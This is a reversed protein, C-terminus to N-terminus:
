HPPEIPFIDITTKQPAAPDFSIIKITHLSIDALNWSPVNSEFPPVNPFERHIVLM